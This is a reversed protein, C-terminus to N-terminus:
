SWILAGARRASRAAKRTPFEQSCLVEGYAAEASWFWRGDEHELEVDKLAAMCNFDFQSPMMEIAGTRYGHGNKTWTQMARLHYRAAETIEAPRPTGALEEVLRRKEATTM